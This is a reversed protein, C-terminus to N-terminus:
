GPFLNYLKVLLKENEELVFLSEINPVLTLGARWKGFFRQPPKIGCIHVQHGLVDQHLVLASNIIELYGMSM